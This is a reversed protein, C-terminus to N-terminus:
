GFTWTQEGWPARGLVSHSTPVIAAPMTSKEHVSYLKPARGAVLVSMNTLIALGAAAKWHSLSGAFPTPRARISNMMLAWMLTWGMASTWGSRVLGSAWRWILSSVRPYACGDAYKM